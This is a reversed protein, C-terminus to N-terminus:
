VYPSVQSALSLASNLLRAFRRATRRLLGDNGHERGPDGLWLSRMWLPWETLRPPDVQRHKCSSRKVNCVTLLVVAFLLVRICLVLVCGTSCCYRGRLATTNPVTTQESRLLLANCFCCARGQPNDWELHGVDCPAPYGVDAMHLDLERRNPHADLVEVLLHSRCFLRYTPQEGRTGRPNPRNTRGDRRWRGALARADAMTTVAGDWQRGILAAYWRRLDLQTCHLFDHRNLRAPLPCDVAVMHGARIADGRRRMQEAVELVHLEDDSWVLTAAWARRGAPGGRAPPGRRMAMDAFPICGSGAVVGVSPLRFVPRSSDVPWCLVLVLLWGQRRECRM